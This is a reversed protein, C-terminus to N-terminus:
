PVIVKLAERQVSFAAPLHGVNEGEVYGADQLGRRMARLRDRLTDPVRGDLFGIVPMAVQQTRAALPWAVAAGGLWTIFARRKM